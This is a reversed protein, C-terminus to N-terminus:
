SRLSLKRERAPSALVRSSPLRLIASTGKGPESELELSGDHLRMFENSLALGLGTGQYRRSLYNEIQAFPKLLKPIDAKAIGIGSDVVALRMGGDEVLSAVVRVKGKEPTFKIANSLLNLVVQKLLREDGNVMPLDRAVDKELALSSALASEAVMGLCDEILKAPAFPAEELKVRGAEVRSLDLIDNVVNLLHQGSCHINQAYEKAREPALPGLIDSAMIESFGLIANLPTRLEHSMNALFMSKAQNATEADEKAQRLEQEVRKLETMDQITGVLNSVRGDQAHEVEVEIHVNRVAGGTQVIRLDIGVGRGEMISVRLAEHTTFVDEPHVCSRFLAYTPTIGGRKMGFIEYTEDSWDFEDRQVNWNWSGVHAIRQAKALMRRSHRLAELAEHRDTVDVWAYLLAEGGDFNIGVLSNVVWRREGAATRIAIEGPGAGATELPMAEECFRMLDGGVLKAVPERVLEAFAANAFLIEGDDPRSIAIGFPLGEIIARLQAEHRTLKEEAERIASLDRIVATYIIRGDLEIKSIAAEAPFESGDKRRGKIEPRGSMLRSEEVESGFSAVYRRHRARISKPLLTDLPQGLIEQAEYGFLSEAQRNFLVIKQEADISLIADGAAALLESVQRRLFEAERDERVVEVLLTTIPSHSWLRSLHLTMGDALRYTRKLEQTGGEEEAAISRSELMEGRGAIQRELLALTLQANKELGLMALLDRANANLTMLKGNTRDFTFVSPSAIVSPMNM